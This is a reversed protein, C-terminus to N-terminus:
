TTLEIKLIEKTLKTVKFRDDMRNNIIWVLKNDSFLLQANEKEPLSWKEDKFYKSVKKKGTM